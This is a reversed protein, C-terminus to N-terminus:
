KLKFFPPEIIRDSNTERLFLTQPEATIGVPKIWLAAVGDVNVPIVLEYRILKAGSVEFKGENDTKFVSAKTQHRMHELYDLFLGMLQNIPSPGSTKEGKEALAEQIVRYKELKEAQDGVLRDFMTLLEERVDSPFLYVPVRQITVPSRKQTVFSIRGSIQIQDSLDVTNKNTLRQFAITALRQAETIEADIMKKSVSDRGQASKSNGKAAALNFWLHAQVYKGKEALMEGAAEMAGVNGRQAAETALNIAKTEDREVGTGNRYLHALLLKAEISGREACEIIIEAALKHDQPVGNGIILNRATELRRFLSNPESKDTSPPPGNEGAFSDSLFLSSIITVWVIQKLKHDFGLFHIGSERALLFWSQLKKM